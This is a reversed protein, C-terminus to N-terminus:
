LVQELRSELLFRFDERAVAEVLESAFARVLLRRASELSLGRSRLFFLAKDDLRGTTSGHSCKVDDAWIELQPRSNVSAERSLLLNRSSQRASTKQAARDVQVVGLFSASSRGGALAQFVQKSETHPAAHRVVTLVDAVEEGAQACLGALDARAGPGQLEVHCEARSVSSGFLFQRSVFSADRELRAVIGNWASSRVHGDVLMAHDVSAGQGLRFETVSRSISTRGPLAVGLRVVDVQAGASADVVHRTWGSGSGIELIQVLGARVGRSVSVHVGDEAQALVAAHLSPEPPDFRGPRSQRIEDETMASLPRVDVGDGLRSLDDRFVGDQFVLLSDAGALVWSPDLADLSSGEAEPSQLFRAPDLYKWEESGAVPLSSLGGSMADGDAM